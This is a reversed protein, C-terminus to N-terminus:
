YKTTGRTEGTGSTGRTNRTNHDLNDKIQKARDLHREVTPLVDAAWQNVSTTVRNDSSEPKVTAPNEPNKGTVRDGLSRNEDVRSRLDRVVDEHGDVMAGMYEKDFDAGRLKTLKDMLDKHKDDVKTEMPIANTTAIQKLQDGAKTHDDIMMQAFQKVEPSAAHDQALRALDLEASGDALMHNVFNKDSTSVGAGATGTTGAENGTAITNSTRSNCGAMLGAACVVALLGKFKM